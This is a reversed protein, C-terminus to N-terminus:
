YDACSGLNCLMCCVFMIDSALLTEYKRMHESLIKFAKVGQVIDKIHVRKAAKKRSKVSVGVAEFLDRVPLNEDAIVMDGATFKQPFNEGEIIQRAAASGVYAPSVYSILGRSTSGIICKVTNRNQGPSFTRHRSEPDKPRRVPCELVDIIVRTAPYMAKFDAPAYYRVLDSSPWLDIEGWELAMFRLWTFVVNAVCGITVHFLLSLEFNSKHQRLKVLTMFLRDRVGITEETVPGDKYILEYAAPGLTQLVFNFMDVDKLGAFFQMASPDNIFRDVCFGIRRNRTQTSSDVVTIKPVAEAESGNIIVGDVETNASNGRVSDADFTEQEPSASDVEVVMGVEPDALVLLAIDEGEQDSEMVLTEANTLRLSEAM